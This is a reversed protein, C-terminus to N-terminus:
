GILIKEIPRKLPAEKKREAFVLLLSLGGIRGGYMLIILIMRSIKSLGTTIGMTLGVTGSASATEFLVAKMGLHDFSCILISAALIAVLYVFCIVTAHKITSDEIRRKHITVQERGESLCILSFLIVAVTTTKVGGATSGPSGGIFMLLMAVVSGSDTLKDLPITNFGATRTTVSMFSATLLNTDPELLWFLVTGGFLLSLTTLLVIKSHLSYNKFDLKHSIFDSWVTFGIGGIIILAMIILNVYLDNRYSTLSSFPEKIGMLDFGANCFASISHFISYYIGRVPGFEPIFRFMLLVAGTGEFLATGMCIRRILQVVGNTRINGSSQILLMRESLGIKRKMFIAFMSILTMLGLGGIQILLLIILQGATSWYTATDYVVLGTVCTASTATFLADLFPTFCHSVSAFPLTLLCAGTFIILLFSLAIVRTYSMKKFLNNM